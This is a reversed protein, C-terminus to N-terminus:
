RRFCRLRSPSYLPLMIFRIAYAHCRILRRCKPTGSVAAPTAARFCHLPMAADYLLLLMFAAYCRAFLLTDYRAIADAVRLMAYCVVASMLPATDAASVYAVRARCAARPMM